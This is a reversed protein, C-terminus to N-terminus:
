VQWLDSICLFLLFNIKGLFQQYIKCNIVFFCCIGCQILCSIEHPTQRIKCLCLSLFYYCYICYIYQYGDMYGDMDVQQMTNLPNVWFQFNDDNVRGWTMEFSKREETSWLLLYKSSHRYVLCNRNGHVEITYRNPVFHPHTLPSM